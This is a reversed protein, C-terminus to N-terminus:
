GSGYPRTIIELLHGAPDHFYVGRGGDARNIQGPQHLGPDAWYDVERETIRGFIQDFEEESILFAYHQGVIPEEAEHFDLSVGNQLDVVLFPGFPQPTPLGLVETMFTASRRKDRCWVITHNLKVSM